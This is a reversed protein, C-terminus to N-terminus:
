VHACILVKTARYPVTFSEACFYITISEANCHTLSSISSTFIRIHVLQLQIQQFTCLIHVQPHVQKGWTHPLHVWLQLAVAIWGLWQTGWPINAYEYVYNHIQKHTKYVIYICILQTFRQCIKKVTATIARMVSAGMARHRVHLVVMKVRVRARLYRDCLCKFIDM